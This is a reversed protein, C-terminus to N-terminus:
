IDVKNYHDYLFDHKQMWDNMEKLMENYDKVIFTFDNRSNVLSKDVKYKECKLIINKKGFELKMLELLIFKSIKKNNVLHYLGCINEKIAIKIANLLEITTVGTWYANTYGNIEGHQKYFWNFLGIGSPNIDPGIISTRFTLDKSNIIEGIAKSQAYYGIGNKFSTEIYNGEKGSFVCDTSIHIIKINKQNTISELFHPLYANVLIAKDPNEEATKNLLGVCNIIIDPNENNIIEELRKFNTIDLLYTPQISSQARAISVVEYNNIDDKLGTAIVHGAMGNVGLILIKTKM